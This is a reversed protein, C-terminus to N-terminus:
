FCAGRGLSSALVPCVTVCHTGWEGMALSWEAWAEFVALVLCMGGRYQVLPWFMVWRPFSLAWVCHLYHLASTSASTTTFLLRSNNWFYCGKSIVPINVFGRSKGWQPSTKRGPGNPFVTTTIPYTTVNLWNHVVHLDMKSWNFVGLRRTKILPGPLVLTIGKKIFVM